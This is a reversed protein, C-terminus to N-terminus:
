KILEVSIIHDDESIKMVVELGSIVNAFLTYRSNLHPYFGQMIFFQSSETDKGASAMGVAGTKFEEMSLESIIEHGAGRWGTGTPDGAQIVFGPVVRHFTIGNYFNKKALSVFNGVTVPALDAKFKIEIDGKNTKIKAGSYSFSAKIIDSFDNITTHINEIRNEIRRLFKRLSYVRTDALKNVLEQQFEKSIKEALNVLSIEAEIFHTNHKFRIAQNDIIEKLIQSNEFIFNSDIGDAITSIIAPEDSKLERLIFNIFNTDGSFHYKHSLIIELANLKQKPDSLQEYLQFLSIFRFDNTQSALLQILNLQSLNKLILSDEILNKNGFLKLYTKIAETVIFSKRNHIIINKLLSSIASNNLIDNDWEPIQFAKLTEILINENITRDSLISSFINIIQNASKSYPLSKVLEIKVEDDKNLLNDIIETNEPFYKQVRFNILALQLMENDDAQYFLRLMESNITSDSGLRSLVFLIKKKRAPFTNLNLFEKVLYNKSEENTINRIRFQLIAEELGSLEPHKLGLRILEILDTQNGIKGLASFISASCNCQNHNLKEFLFNKSSLSDGIQGLAFSIWNGYKNFDLNILPQIFTTDDSHSLSILAAIIDASDSSFLYKDIIKKDFERKATTEILDIKNSDFQAFQVSCNLIFFTFFLITTLYSNGM